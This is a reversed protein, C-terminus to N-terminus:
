KEKHLQVIDFLEAKKFEKVNSIAQGKSIKEMSKSVVKTEAESFGLFKNIVKPNNKDKIDLLFAIECMSSFDFGPQNYEEIGQSLLFVMVGRSRVERVIKELIEHSKKQKFLTHAEDIVLM